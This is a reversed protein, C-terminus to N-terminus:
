CTIIHDAHRQFLYSDDIQIENDCCETIVGPLWSPGSTHALNQVLVLDDGKFIRIKSHAIHQTKQNKEVNGEESPLILNLCLCSQASSDSKITVTTDKLTGLESSFVSLNGELTDQLSLSCCTYNICLETWDLHIKVLWDRGLLSPGHGTGVVLQLHAKRDKYQVDVNITGKVTLQEGRYTHLTISSELLTPKQDPWLRNYTEESIISVSGGTDVEMELEFNDVGVTVKLPKDSTGTLNYMAYDESDETV